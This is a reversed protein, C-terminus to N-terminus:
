YLCMFLPRRAPSSVSRFKSIGGGVKLITAPEWAHLENRWEVLEMTVFVAMDQDGGDDRSGRAGESEPVPALGGGIGGGQEVHGVWQEFSSESDTRTDKAKSPAVYQHLRHDARYISSRQEGHDVDDGKFFGQKADEYRDGGGGDDGDDYDDDSYYGYAGNDRRLSRRTQERLRQKRRLLWRFTLIFTINIIMYAGFLADSTANGM